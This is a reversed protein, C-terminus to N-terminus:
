STRENAVPPSVVPPVVPPAGPPADLEFGTWDIADCIRRAEPECPVCVLGDVTTECHVLRRCVFCTVYEPWEDNRETATM